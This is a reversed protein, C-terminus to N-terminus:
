TALVTCRRASITSSGRRSVTVKSSSCRGYRVTSPKEAGWWRALRWRGDDDPRGARLPTPRIPTMPTRPRDPGAIGAVVWRQETRAVHKILGGLSLGSASPTARAQEDTLWLVSARLADRQQALFVLLGDREDAVAHAFLPM